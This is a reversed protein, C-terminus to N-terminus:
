STYWYFSTYTTGDSAAGFEFYYGGDLAEPLSGGCMSSMGNITVSRGAINSCNWNNFTGEVFYCVAETTEFSGSNGQAAGPQTPTRPAPCTAGAPSGATGSRGGRGAGANSSGGGSPLATSGGAPSTGSTASVAASGDDPGTDQPDEDVIATACGVGAFLALASGFKQPRSCSM